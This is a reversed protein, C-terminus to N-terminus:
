KEFFAIGVAGAGIHTGITGGLCFRGVDKKLGIKEASDALFAELNESSNGSWLVGHPMEFNVGGKSEIEKNLFQIAKKFGITKGIVKVEGGSVAIMPKLNVLGGIAAAAASIRGGKKLYKLTDIMAFLRIKTKATELKEVIEEASLNEAVLNLAYLTLLRQGICANLSDVVFVKGLFKEAAALANRHTGSIKSSLTIAIVQDGNETLKEFAEEFRFPNIQSTVPLDDCTELKDYFDSPMLNVGDFYEIDGFTIVMPMLHIGMKDAEFQNIDSGSDTLIKIAM